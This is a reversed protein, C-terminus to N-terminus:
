QGKVVESQGNETDIVKFEIRRNKFRGEETENDAVPNEAGYGVAQLRSASVGTAVLYDVVSQARRQSLRKNAEANGTSDTYGEAVVNVRPVNKLLAAAQDLIEKNRAPLEKSATPFNIIQLNLAHAIDAPKAQQSLEALAQKSDEISKNVSQEVNLPIAATVDLDPAIAKVEDILRKLANQDPANIVLQQGKWEFSARPVKHIAALVAELKDSAPLESAYATDTMVNCSSAKEGFVKQFASKITTSLADNGVHATCAPLMDGKGSALTIHAPMTNKAVESAVSSQSTSPNAESAAPATMSPQDPKQCSKLGFFVLIALIILALIPFIKRFVSVPKDTKQAYVHQSKEERGLMSSLGLVSLLGSAWAPFANAITGIHQSLYGQFGHVGVEDKIAEVSPVISQDLLSIVTQDPLSHHKALRHVLQKTVPADDAFLASLANSKDALIADVREPFNHLLSLFVPYFQALLSSKKDADVELQQNSVVQPTVKEKLLEIPNISM